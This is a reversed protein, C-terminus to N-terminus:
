FINEKVSIVMNPFLQESTMAKKKYFPIRGSFKALSTVNAFPAIETTTFYLKKKSM